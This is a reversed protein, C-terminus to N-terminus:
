MMSTVKSRRDREVNSEYHLQMIAQMVHENWGFQLDIDRETVGTIHMNNRAQTDAGRRNSHHGWLPALLGRLDLEPDPSEANALEYARPLCEHLLAYTSAPQLPMHAYGMQGNTARMLPGPVISIRDGFGAMTLERAVQSLAVSDHPGGVINVYKKELSDAELRRKATSVSYHAWKRAESADSRELIRGLAAIRELDGERSAALAVLSVRVVSYDPGIVLYGAELRSVTKMGAAKWYDQLHDALRVRAPGKSMGVANVYRSHKTKSHELFGEVTADESPVGFEDLRHLITLHNALLGHYDGGSLVEGVRLGLMVELAFMLRMRVNVLESGGRQPIVDELVHRMMRRTTATRPRAEEGHRTKLEEFLAKVDARRTLNERGTKLMVAGATRVLAELSLAREKATVIWCMFMLFVNHSDSPLIGGALGGISEMFERELRQYDFYSAGTAEAGSSLQILMTVTALELAAAPMDEEAVGPRTERVRCQPCLFCGLSAHGKTLQACKRGHLRAPCPAGNVRGLCIMQPEDILGCGGELCTQVRMRRDPGIRDQLQQKRQASGDRGLVGAGAVEPTPDCPPCRMEPAVRDWDMQSTSIDQPDGEGMAQPNPDGGGSLAMAEMARRAMDLCVRSDHIMGVGGPTIRTSASRTGFPHGCGACKM